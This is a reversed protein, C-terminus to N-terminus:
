NQNMLEKLDKWLYEKSWEGFFATYNGNPHILVYSSCPYHFKFFTREIINKPDKFYQQIEAYKELGEKTRYVYIPKVKAISNVKRKLVKNYARRSSITSSGSSNYLDKGPYYVVVLPKTRDIVIGTRGQLESAIEEFNDIKGKELREAVAKYINLSDNEVIMINKAKSIRLFEKESVSNNQPDLFIPEGGGPKQASVISTICIFLIIIYHKMIKQFQSTLKM